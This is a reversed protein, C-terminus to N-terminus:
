YCVVGLLAMVALFLPMPMKKLSMLVNGLLFLILTLFSYVSFVDKQFLPFFLSIFISAILGATAIKIGNFISIIEKKDKIKYWKPSIISVILVSPLVLSFTAIIAGLFGFALYGAYTAMNVGLAGPTVEALAIFTTLDNQTFWGWKDIMDNLFPIIALGGGFVFIGTTFFAYFLHLATM